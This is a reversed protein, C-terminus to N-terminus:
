PIPIESNFVQTRKMIRRETDPFPERRHMTPRNDWILLDNVQWDHSWVFQPQSQHAYLTQLLEESNIKPM